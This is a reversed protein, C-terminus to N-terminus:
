YRVRRGKGDRLVDPRGDERRGTVPLGRKRLEEEIVKWRGVEKHRDISTQRRAHITVNPLHALPPVNSSKLQNTAPNPIRVTPPLSTASQFQSPPPLSATLIENVTKPPPAAVSLLQSLLASLTTIRPLTHDPILNSSLQTVRKLIQITLNAPPLITPPPTRVAFKVKPDTLPLALFSEDIPSIPQTSPSTAVATSKLSEEEEVSRRLEELIAVEDSMKTANTQADQSGAEKENPFIDQEPAEVENETGRMDEKVPKMSELILNKAEDGPYALAFSMEGKEGKTIKIEVHRILDAMETSEAMDPRSSYTLKRKVAQLTSVEVMARHVACLLDERSTLKPRTM